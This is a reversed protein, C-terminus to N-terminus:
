EANILFFNLKKTSLSSLFPSYPAPNEKPSIDKILFVVLFAVMFDTSFLIKNDM